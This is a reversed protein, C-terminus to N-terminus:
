TAMSRRSAPSRASSCTSARASSRLPRRPTSTASRCSTAKSRRRRTRCRTGFATVIAARSCDRSQAARRCGTSTADSIAARAARSPFVHARPPEIQDGGRVGLLAADREVDVVVAPGLDAARAPARLLADRRRLEHSGLDRGPRRRFASFTSTSAVTSRSCGRARATRASSTTIRSSRATPASVRRGRHVSDARRPAGRSDRRAAHAPLPGVLRVLESDHLADVVFREAPPTWRCRSSSSRTTSSSPARGRRAAPDRSQLPRAHARRPRLRRLRALVRPQRPSASPAQADRRWGASRAACRIARNAVRVVVAAEGGHVFFHQVAFSLFSFSCHGGFVRRYHM